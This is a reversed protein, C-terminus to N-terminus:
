VAHEKLASLTIIALTEEHTAELNVKPAHGAKYADFWRGACLCWRDGPQIGKFGFEPHPTSLDNGADKSFTLFDETAVICITHIGHDSHDTHCCGDRFFGTIPDYSCHQLKEGFVNLQNEIKNMQEKYIVESPVDM